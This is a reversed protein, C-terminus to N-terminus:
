GEDPSGVAELVLVQQKLGSEFIYLNTELKEIVPLSYKKGDFPWHSSWLLWRWAQMM